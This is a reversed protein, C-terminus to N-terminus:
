EKKPFGDLQKRRLKRFNFSLETVNSKQLRSSASNNAVSLKTRLLLNSGMIQMHFATKKKLVSILENEQKVACRCKTFKVVLIINRLGNEFM